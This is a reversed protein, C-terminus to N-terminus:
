EVDGKKYDNVPLWIWGHVDDFVHGKSLEVLDDFDKHDLDSKKNVGDLQKQLERFLNKYITLHTVQKKLQENERKCTNCVKKLTNYEDIKEDIIGKMLQHQEWFSNLLDLVEKSSIPKGNDWFYYETLTFRKESM